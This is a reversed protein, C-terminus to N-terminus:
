VIDFDSNHDCAQMLVLTSMMAGYDNQKWDQSMQSSVLYLSCSSWSNPSLGRILCFMPLLHILRHVKTGLLKVIESLVELDLTPMSTGNLGLM